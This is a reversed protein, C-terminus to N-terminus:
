GARAPARPERAAYRNLDPSARPDGVDRVDPVEPLAFMRGM